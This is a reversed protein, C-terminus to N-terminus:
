REAVMNRGKIKFVRIKFVPLVFRQHAVSLRFRGIVEKSDLEVTTPLCEADTCKCQMRSRHVTRVKASHRRHGKKLLHAGVIGVAVNVRFHSLLQFGDRLARGGGDTVFLIVKRWPTGNWLPSSIRAASTTAENLRQAGTALRPRAM